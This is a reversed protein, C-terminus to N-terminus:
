MLIDDQVSLKVVTWIWVNRKGELHKVCAHGHLVVAGGYKYKLGTVFDYGMRTVWSWVEWCVCWCWKRYKFILVEDSWQIAALVCAVPLINVEYMGSASSASSYSVCGVCLCILIIFSNMTHWYIREQFGLVFVELGVRIRRLWVVGLKDVFDGPSGGGGIVIVPTPGHIALELRRHWLWQLVASVLGRRAVAWLTLSISSTGSRYAEKWVHM